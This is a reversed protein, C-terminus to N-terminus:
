EIIMDTIYVAEIKKTMYQNIRNLIELRLQDKGDPGLLFERTKKTAVSVVADRLQPLRREIESKQLDGGLYEMSLELRIFRNELPNGLNLNFPKFAYTDGFSIKEGSAKSTTDPGEAKKEGEGAKGGEAPKGAEGHAQKEGAGASETSAPPKKGPSLLLFLVVGVVGVLVIGAGMMIFLKKKSKPAEAGEGEEDKEKPDKPPKAEKTEKPAKAEKADKKEEKEKAM